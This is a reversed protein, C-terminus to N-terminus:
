FYWIDRASCYNAAKQSLPYIPPVVEGCVIHAKMPPICDEWTWAAWLGGPSFSWNWSCIWMEPDGSRTVRTVHFRWPWCSTVQAKRSLYSLFLLDQRPSTCATNTKKKYWSKREDGTSAFFAIVSISFVFGSWIVDM